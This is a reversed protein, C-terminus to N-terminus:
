ILYKPDDCGTWNLVVHTFSFSKEKVTESNHGTNCLHEDDQSTWYRLHIGLADTTQENEHVGQTAEGTQLRFWYWM